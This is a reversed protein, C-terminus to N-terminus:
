KQGNKAMKPQKTVFKRVKQYGKYLGLSHPPAGYNVLILYAWDVIAYICFIAPGIIGREFRVCLKLNNELTLAKM